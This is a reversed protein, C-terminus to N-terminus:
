GNIDKVFQWIWGLNRPKMLDIRRMLYSKPGATYSFMGSRENGSGDRWKAVVTHAGPGINIDNLIGESDTQGLLINNDIFISANDAPKGEYYVLVDLTSGLSLEICLLLCISFLALTFRKIIM